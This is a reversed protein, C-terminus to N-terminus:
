YSLSKSLSKAYYTNTNPVFNCCLQLLTECKAITSDRLAITSDRPAITAFNSYFVNKLYNNKNTLFM